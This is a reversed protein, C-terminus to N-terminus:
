HLNVGDGAYSRIATIMADAANTAQLSNSFDTREYDQRHREYTDPHISKYTELYRLGAQVIGKAQAEHFNGDYTTAPWSKALLRAQEIPDLLKVNQAYLLISSVSLLITLSPYVLEKISRHNIFIDKLWM